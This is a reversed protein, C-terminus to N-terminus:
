KLHRPKTQEAPIDMLEGIIKKRSANLAELSRVAQNNAASVVRAWFPNPCRELRDMNIAGFLGTVHASGATPRDSASSRMHRSSISAPKPGTTTFRGQRAHDEVIAFAMLQGPTPGCRSLLRSQDTDVPRRRASVCTSRPQPEAAQGEPTSNSRPSRVGPPRFRSRFDTADFTMRRSCNSLRFVPEWEDAAWINNWANSLSFRRGASLWLKTAMSSAGSILRAMIPDNNM